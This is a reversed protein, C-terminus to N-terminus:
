GSKAKGVAKEDRVEGTHGFNGVGSDGSMSVQFVEPSFLTTWVENWRVRSVSSPHSLKIRTDPHYEM